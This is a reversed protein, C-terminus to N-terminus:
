IETTQFYPTTAATAANYLVSGKLSWNGFDDAILGMAGDPTLNVRFVEVMHRPGSVNVDAIYRIAGNLIPSTGALIQNQATIAAYSYDVKVIDTGAIGGTPVIYIRGTTADVTYDTNLTMVTTGTAGAKVVVASISRKATPYWRGKKPASTITEATVTGSSQSVTTATGLFALALNEANFEDGKINIDFKTQKPARGILAATADRSTFKEALDVSPVIEFTSCNGLDLEGTKNGASDFRDFYVVGKGLLLNRGDPAVYSPM